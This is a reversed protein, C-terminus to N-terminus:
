LASLQKVITAYRTERRAAAEPFTKCLAVNDNFVASFKSM